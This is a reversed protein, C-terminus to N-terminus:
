SPWRWSGRSGASDYRLLGTGSPFRLGATNRVTVASTPSGPSQVSTVVLRASRGDLDTAEVLSFKEWSPVRSMSSLSVLPEFANQHM